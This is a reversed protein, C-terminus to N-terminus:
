QRQCSRLVAQRGQSADSREPCPREGAQLAHGIDLNVGINERDVEQCLALAEGAGAIFCRTRPESYKYEICIRIEPAREAAYDGIERFARVINDYAVSYDM